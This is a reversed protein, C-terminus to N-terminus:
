SCKLEQKLYWSIIPEILEFPVNGIHKELLHVVKHEGWEFEHDCYICNKIQEMM